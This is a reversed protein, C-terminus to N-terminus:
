KVGPDAPPPVPAKSDDQICAALDMLMFVLAKEQPTIVTTKCNTPFTGTSDDGASVHIDTHVARGCQMEPPTGLPTNFSFFKTQDSQQTAYIWRRSTEAPQGTAPVSAVSSKLENMGVMGSGAATTAQVTDLWRAFDKGKQVTQDITVNQDAPVADDGNLWSATVALPNPAAAGANNKFWTYHYHSAFVRGGADLYKKLNDRALQSKTDNVEAGECSLIVIDHKMLDAESDWLSQANTAGSMTAAPVDVDYTGGQFVHVRGTGNGPTFETDEIGIKRLFCELSDAAGTTIAIQPIDGQTKNRPLHTDSADLQADGCQTIKSGPVTIQRRWRGLQIVLPFDTGVPVNELKFSGTADTLATTIPSGSPATGCKDCTIGSTFAALPANPVYVIANYLPITGEPLYVKGSLSTTGGGACSVQKCQLGVCPPPGDGGSSSTMFGSSAGGSAGSSAGSSAGFNSGDEDSGCAVVALFAGLSCALITAALERRTAM